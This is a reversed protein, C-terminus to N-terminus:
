SKKKKGKDVFRKQNTAFKGAVSAATIPALIKIPNIVTATASVAIAAVAAAAATTVLSPRGRKRREKFRKIDEETWDYSHLGSPLTNFKVNNEKAWKRATIEAVNLLMAIEKTTM